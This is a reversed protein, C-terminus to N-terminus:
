LGFADALHWLILDVPPEGPYPLTAGIRAENAAQSLLLLAQGTTGGVVEDAV